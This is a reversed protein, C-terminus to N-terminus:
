RVIAAADLNLLAKAAIVEANNYGEYGGEASACRRVIESLKATATQNLRQVTKTDPLALGADAKSQRSLPIMNLLRDSTQFIDTHM